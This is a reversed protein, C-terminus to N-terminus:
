HVSPNLKLVAVKEYDLLQYSLVSGRLKCRFHSTIHKEPHKNLTHSFERQPQCKSLDMGLYNQQKISYVQMAQAQAEYLKCVM